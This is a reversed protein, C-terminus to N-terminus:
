SDLARVMVGRAAHLIELEQSSWARKYNAPLNRVELITVNQQVEMNDYEELPNIDEEPAEPEPRKQAQRGTLQQPKQKPVKYPISDHLRHVKLRNIGAIISSCLIGLTQRKRQDLAIDM